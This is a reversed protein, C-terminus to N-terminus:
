GLMIILLLLIRCMCSHYESLLKVTTEKLVPRCYKTSSLRVVSVSYVKKYRNQIESLM